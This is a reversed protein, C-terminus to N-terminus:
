SHNSLYLGKTGAQAYYIPHLSILESLIYVTRKHCRSYLYHAERRTPYLYYPVKNNCLIDYEPHRGDVKIDFTPNRITVYSIM